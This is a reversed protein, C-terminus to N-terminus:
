LQVGKRAENLADQWENGQWAPETESRMIGEKIRQVLTPKTM